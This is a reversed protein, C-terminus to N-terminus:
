EFYANIQEIVSELVGEDDEILYGLLEMHEYFALLTDADDDNIMNARHCGGCARAAPGTVVAPIDGINRDVNWEYSGSLKGALSKTQDPVEYTGENHCAQCNKITFNPFNHGIHLEYRVREVPDTFDIRDTDFAQFRHIAHLYSDFSRSQMELHGSGSVPSHCERCLRVNSGAFINHSGHPVLQDHCKSCKEDFDVIDPYYDEYAGDELNFTRSPSKIDVIVDGVLLKAAVGIEIRKIAGEVYHDGTELGSLDYTASWEAGNQTVVYYDSGYDPNYYGAGPYAPILFDKTDYGYGAIYLQPAIDAAYVGGINSTAHFNFTFTKAVADYAFDDDITVVVEDAYKEGAATYIEPNYGTHIENFAPAIGAGHCTDCPVQGFGDVGHPVITNLALEATGYDESGDVPHCSKCVALTMNEDALVRDLKGEHCTACTSMSQPYPFEMAHSMHVDNMINATYAYKEEEEPTLDDGEHVEVFREPDDVLIQWDEHGGNRDDYHCNKCSAFDPLGEVRAERYGHKRYPEGHCKECGSVNAASHYTTEANAAVLAGGNPTLDGSTWGASAVDSYLHVHTGELGKIETDLENKAIYGYVQAGDDCGELDPELPDFPVGTATLQYEGPNGTMVLSGFSNSHYFKQTDADYCTTYFRKQPFSSLGPDIVPYGNEMVLITITVDYSTSPTSEVDTIELSLTTEDNYQAYDSYHKDFGDDSHCITCTEPSVTLEEPPVPPIILDCGTFVLAVVSGAALRGWLKFINSGLQTKVM